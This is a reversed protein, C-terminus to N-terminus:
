LKKKKISLKSGQLNKSFFTDLLSYLFYIIIFFNIGLSIFFFNVLWNLLLGRGKKFKTYLVINKKM